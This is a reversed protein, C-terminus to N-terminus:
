NAKEDMIYEKILKATIPALLIGSRFHGCALILGELKPHPGILPLHNPTDPRFGAWLKVIPSKFDSLIKNAKTLISNVGELTVDKNFGVDEVTSGILLKGDKRPVLYGKPYIIIHKITRRKTETLVIQGKIPKVPISIGALNGIKGSWCGAAIVIKEAFLKEKSTEVGIIKNREKIFGIVPNHLFFRVKNKRCADELAYMFRPPRIQSVESLYLAGALKRSLLPEEKLLESKKIKEPKFGHKRYLTYESEIADTTWLVHIMGSKVCEPNIKTNEKLEKIFQPYMKYSQKGLEILSSVNGELHIIHPASIIGASAWSAEKGVEGAEIVTVKIKQKTLEFAISCGIVGAGITIVDTTKAM